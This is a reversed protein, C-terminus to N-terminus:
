RILVVRGIADEDPGTIKIFYIGSQAVRGTDDRGDWALWRDGAQRLGAAITRVQAGSADFIRVTVPAARGLAFGIRIQDMTPNPTVIVTGTPLSPGPGAIASTPCPNPECLTGNGQYSGGHYACNEPSFIECALYQCCAGGLASKLGLSHYGGAAVGVFDANPAPVDGQGYRNDGWAAITGDSRLAVNHSGSVTVTVFGANPPPVDCQGWDNAGWAVISGDAKLGLSHGGGAAVAVFSTNPSPVDCQGYSSAGWAVISSDSRIALSHYAGGCVAVFHANPLPPISCQSSDDAGWAAITGDAKLGLSHIWGSAVSVFSNNPEPVDCQGSDNRGWAVVSGDPKLGLSHEWGGAVAVFGANPAPVNCQGYNNRGWATITRDPRLGLSHWYGGAVAMFGTNPAPVDCQGDANRGWAAISGDQAAAGTVSLVFLYLCVSVCVLAKMSGGKRECWEGCLSELTGGTGFAPLGRSTSRASYVGQRRGRTRATDSPARGATM